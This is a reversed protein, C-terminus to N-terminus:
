GAGRAALVEDAARLGHFFAEEFLAVGSLDTHAFHIAGIAESARRRTQGWVVGPRPQVMGHGWRWVDVRRLHADLDPHGRRLDAAIADRWEAWTPELLRRRGDAPVPDTMPLYYTWVTPGHDRGRQHTASVYGLSPSDHILNDWAPPAGRGPPRGDLHLNAVMWAGYPLEDEARDRLPAVIRRAIFRPVAVIAHQAILTAPARTRADVTTIRVGSGEAEALPAIAAVMQEKRLSGGVARALHAVIAGNGQPWTLLARADSSPTPIRSCEYFLMAWASTEALGLGYDDRCGHDLVFRLWEGRFGRQALWEDAGIRDLATVEADDSGAAIPIAFARRGRADRWAVWRDVEARFRELEVRDAAPVVAAPWMGPYWFGRYFIREDPARVMAHEAGIPQGDADEGPEVVGMERLLEILAVNERMPLPLYHAAWPYPTVGDESWASTGGERAEMELVEIEDAPVGRRVLHWAAALGAAGGGIIAVGTRRAGEDGGTRVRLSGDRLAHGLEMSPGLIEGTVPPGAAAGECGDCGIAAAAPIGLMAAIAERRRM